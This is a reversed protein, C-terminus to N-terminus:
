CKIHTHQPASGREEWQRDDLFVIFSHADYLFTWRGDDDRKRRAPHISEGSSREEKEMVHRQLLSVGHPHDFQVDLLQRVEVLHGGQAFRVASHSSIQIFSDIISHGFVPSVRKPPLRTSMMYHHYQLPSFTPQPPISRFPGHCFLIPFISLWVAVCCLHVVREAQSPDRVNTHPPPSDNRVVIIFHMWGAMWGDLEWSVRRAHPTVRRLSPQRYAQGCPRVYWAVSRATSDNM